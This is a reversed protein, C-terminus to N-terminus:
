TGVGRLDERMTRLSRNELTEIWRRSHRLKTRTERNTLGQMYRLEVVRREKATLGALAFECLDRAEADRTHDARDMVLAEFRKGSPMRQVRDRNRCQMRANRRFKVLRQMVIRYYWSVPPKSAKDSRTRIAELLAQMAIAQFDERCFAPDDVWRTSNAIKHALKWCREIEATEHDHNVTCRM